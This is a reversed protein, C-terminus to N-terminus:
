PLALALEVALERVAAALLDIVEDCRVYVLQVADVDGRRQVPQGLARGGRRNPESLGVRAPLLRPRRGHAAGDLRRGVLLLHPQRRQAPARRGHQALLAPHGRAREGRDRPRHALELERVGPQEGGEGLLRARLELPAREVGEAHGVDRPRQRRQAIPVLRIRRQQVRQRLRGDCGSHGGGELRLLQGVHHPGEGRELPPM